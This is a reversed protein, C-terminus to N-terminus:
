VWKTRFNATTGRDHMLEMLQVSELQMEGLQFCQTQPVRQSAFRNHLLLEKDQPKMIPVCVLITPSRLERMRTVPRETIGDKGSGVRESPQRCLAM